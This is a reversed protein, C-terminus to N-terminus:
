PINKKAACDEMVEHTEPIGGILSTRFNALAITNITIVFAPPMGVQTYTGDPKVCAAYAAVDYQAPITAIMYDLMKRSPKLRALKVAIHGLGGIGAIGIKDGKKFIAKMLPSYTTIGACFLPATAAPNLMESIHLVYDENVVISNAYGGYTPTEIDQELSNYTQTNANLCYQELGHQCSPCVRCSDVMCGTGALCAVKFKTVQALPSVKTHTAYGKVPVM